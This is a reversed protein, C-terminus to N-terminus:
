ICSVTGGKQRMWDSAVIVSIDADQFAHEKLVFQMACDDEDLPFAADPYPCMRCQTKWKECDFHYICHGGLFFPDHLTIVIPKLRTMIPLMKIDFDTNHILHLHVIDSFLFEKRRLM